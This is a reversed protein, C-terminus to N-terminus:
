SGGIKISDIFQVGGNITLFIRVLLYLRQKNWLKRFDMLYSVKTRVHCLNFNKESSNYLWKTKLEATTKNKPNMSVRWCNKTRRLRAKMRKKVKKIRGQRVEKSFLLVDEYNHLM